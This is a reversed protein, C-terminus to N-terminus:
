FNSDCAVLDLHGEDPGEAVDWEFLWQQKDIGSSSGAKRHILSAETGDVSDIGRLRNEDRAFSVSKRPPAPM